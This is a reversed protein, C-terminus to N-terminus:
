IAAIMAKFIATLKPEAEKVAQLVEQYTITKEVEMIGIDSIVSIALVDMGAHKAAITEQVTSMGVADGGCALLLKYEAKTEFTPGTVSCYVGETISINHQSAISKAMALLKKSYPESMDPFRPGFADINKGILPNQIFLSIHDTILMLNGIEFNKNMAGAANSILLTQVGLLKMVRVPFVVEQASYGEYYHFRGSMAIVQKDGVKGILLKGSHGQVTSTAFHPIDTYPISHEIVMQNAFNGLGSGLIIGIPIANAYFKTIYNAAEQIHQLM